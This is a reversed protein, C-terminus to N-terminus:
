QYQELLQYYYQTAPIKKLGITGENIMLEAISKIQLEKSLSDDIAVQHYQKNKILHDLHLEHSIKSRIIVAEAELYIIELVASDLNTTKNKVQKFITQYNTANIVNSLEYGFSLVASDIDKTSHIRIIHNNFDTNAKSNPTDTKDTYGGFKFGKKKAMKFIERAYPSYIFRSKIEEYFIKEEKSLNSIALLPHSLVLFLTCLLIIKKMYHHSCYHGYFLM